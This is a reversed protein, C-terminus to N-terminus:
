RLHCHDYTKRLKYKKSKNRFTSFFRRGCIDCFVKNQIVQLDRLTRENKGPPKKNREILDRLFKSLTVLDNRLQLLLNVYFDKITTNPDADDYFKLRVGSLTTPLEINDYFSRFVYAYSCPTHVKIASSPPEMFVSREQPVPTNYCEFDLFVAFGAKLRKFNDGPRFQLGNQHVRQTFRNFKFPLHQLVNKSKRFGLIGRTEIACADRWHSALQGASDFLEFCTSCCYSYRSSNAAKGRLKCVFRALSKIAMVHNEIPENYGEPRIDNNSILLHCQFHNSSRAYRSISSPFLGFEGGKGRKMHYFSIAIGTFYKLGFFKRKLNPNVKESNMEELKNIDKIQIGSHQPSLLSRFNITDLTEEFETKNLRSVATNQLRSHLIIVISAPICYNERSHGSRLYWRPDLVTHHFLEKIHAHVPIIKKKTKGFNQFYLNNPEAQVSRVDFQIIREFILGSAQDTMESIDAYTEDLFQSLIENLFEQKESESLLWTFLFSRNRVSSWRQVRDDNLLHSYEILAGLFLFQAPSVFFPNIM